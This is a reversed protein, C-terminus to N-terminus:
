HCGRLLQRPNMCRRKLHAGGQAAQGQLLVGGQHGRALWLEEQHAVQDRSACSSSGPGTGARCHKQVQRSGSNGRHLGQVTAKPPWSGSPLGSSREALGEVVQQQTWTTPRPHHLGGRLTLMGGPHRHLSHQCHGASLLPAATMRGSPWGAMSYHTHWHSRTEPM